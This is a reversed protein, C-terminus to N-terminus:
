VCGTCSNVMEEIDSDLEPWWVRTHAVAKRASAGQHTDHLLELMQERAAALVVIWHGWHVLGHIVM